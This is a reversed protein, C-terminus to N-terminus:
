ESYHKTLYVRLVQQKTASTEIGNINQIPDPVRPLGSDDFKLDAASFSTIDREAAATGLEISAVYKAYAMYAIRMAKFAAPNYQAFTPVERVSQYGTPDSNRPVPLKGESM